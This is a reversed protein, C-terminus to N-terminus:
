GPICLPAPGADSGCVCPGYGTGDAACVQNSICGGPGACAISEGPVCTTTAADAPPACTCPGFASGAPNCVQNTSCGGPGTCAVSQGPVCATRADTSPSAEAVTTDVTADTSTSAEAETTDLAADSSTSADMFDPATAVGGCAALTLVLVAAYPSRGHTCHG